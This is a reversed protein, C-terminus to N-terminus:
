PGCRGGSMGPTGESKAGTETPDRLSGGDGGKQEDYVDGGEVQLDEPLKNDGIHVVKGDCHGRGGVSGVNAEKLFGERHELSLGQRDVEGKGNRFGFQDM